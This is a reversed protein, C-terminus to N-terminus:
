SSHGSDKRRRVSEMTEESKRIIARTHLTVERAQAIAERLHGADGPEDAPFLDADDDPEPEAARADAGPVPGFASSITEQDQLDSGATIWGSRLLLEGLSLDLARALAELRARRPLGVYDRELRSIDSQRVNEGVREALEEQTLGMAMRRQRIAEGLTMHHDRKDQVSM